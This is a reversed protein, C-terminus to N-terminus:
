GVHKNRKRDTRVDFYVVTIVQRRYLPSLQCVSLQKVRLVETQGQWCWEVLAGYENMASAVSLTTVYCLSICHFTSQRTLPLVCHWPSKLVSSLPLFHSEPISIVATLPNAIHAERWVHNTQDFSPTHPPHHKAHLPSCFIPICFKPQLIQFSFIV